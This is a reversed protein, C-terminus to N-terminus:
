GIGFAQTISPSGASQGPRAVGLQDALTAALAVHDLYVNSTHRQLQPAVIVLPVQNTGGGESEDWTIYLVGGGKWASSATIEPVLTSLFRDAVTSSCDHGDNCLGPTIWVFQPTSGSLDAQLQSLSVVAAPCQAGYYPFPNHKLAYPYPSRFCSGTFGEMYARWSVGANTLETGLGGDAPLPHWGDDGVGWTSGSTMALYNPLSPHAVAHYNTALGYKGALSAVYPMALAQQYSRNEMVIVFVHAYAPTPPPTSSPTPPPSPTISEASAAPSTKSSSPPVGCATALMSVVLLALATKLRTV